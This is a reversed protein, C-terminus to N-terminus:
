SKRPKLANEVNMWFEAEAQKGAAIAKNALKGAYSHANRGHRDQIEPATQGVQRDCALEERQTDSSEKTIM